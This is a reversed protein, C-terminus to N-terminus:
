SLLLFIDGCLSIELITKVKSIKKRRKEEVRSFPARGWSCVLLLWVWAMRKMGLSEGWAGREICCWFFGM